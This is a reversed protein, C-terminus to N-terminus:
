YFFNKHGACSYPCFDPFVSFCSPQSRTLSSELCSLLRWFAGYWRRANDLCVRAQRSIFLPNLIIKLLTLLLNKYNPTLIRIYPFLFTLLTNKSGCHSVVIRILSQRWCHERGTVNQHPDPNPDQSEYRQSVSVARSGARKTLSRWSALLFIKGNTKISIRRKKLCM